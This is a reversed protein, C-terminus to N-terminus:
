ELGRRNLHSLSGIGWELHFIHSTMSENMGYNQVKNIIFCTKTVKINEFSTNKDCSKSQHRRKIIDYINRLKKKTKSFQKYM